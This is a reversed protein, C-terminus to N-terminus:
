RSTGIGFWQKTTFIMEDYDTDEWDWGNEDCVDDMIDVPSFDEESPNYLRCHNLILRRIYEETEPETTKLTIEFDGCPGNDKFRLKFVTKKDEM